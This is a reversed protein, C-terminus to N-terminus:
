SRMDRQSLFAKVADKDLNATVMMRGEKGANPGILGYLQIGKAVKLLATHTIVQKSGFTLGPLSSLRKVGLARELEDRAYTAQEIQKVLMDVVEDMYILQQCLNDALAKCEETTAM